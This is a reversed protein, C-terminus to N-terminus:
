NDEINEQENKSLNENTTQETEQTNGISQSNTEKSNKNEAIDKCEDSGKNDSSNKSKLNSLQSQLTRNLNTMATLQKEKKELESKFTKLLQEKKASDVKM